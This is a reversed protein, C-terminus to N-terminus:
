PTKYTIYIKILQLEETVNGQIDCFSMDTMQMVPIQCFEM